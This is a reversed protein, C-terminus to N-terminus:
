LQERRIKMKMLRGMVDENSLSHFLDKEIYCILGDCLFYDAMRNRLITKVIKMAFFYREVTATAVPLTLVLKLLRFVLPYARHKGTDVMVRALAFLDKLNSFREDERVNDIYLCLQHEM